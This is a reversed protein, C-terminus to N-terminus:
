LLCLDLLLCLARRMTRTQCDEGPKIAEEADLRLRVRFSAQHKKTLKGGHAAQIHHVLHKTRLRIEAGVAWVVVLYSSSSSYSRPSLRPPFVASM